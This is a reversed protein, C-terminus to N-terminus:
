HFRDLQSHQYPVLLTGTLLEQIAQTM